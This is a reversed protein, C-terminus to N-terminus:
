EEMDGGHESDSDKVGGDADIPTDDDYKWGIGNLYADVAGHLEHSHSIIDEPLLAKLNPNELVIVLCDRADDWDRNKADADLGSGRTFLAWAFLYYVNLDSDDMTRLCELVNLASCSPPILARLLVM